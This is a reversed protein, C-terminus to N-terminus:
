PRPSMLMSSSPSKDGFGFQEKRPSGRSSVFAPINKECRLNCDPSALKERTKRLRGIYIGFLAEMTLSQESLAASMLDTLYFIDDWLGLRPSALAGNKDGYRREAQRDREKM